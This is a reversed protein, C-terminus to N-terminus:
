SRALWGAFADTVIEPAELTSLHGCRPVIQLVSGAIADAMERQLSPPCLTDSDGGLVLTPVAIETLLARSDTRSALARSQRAFVEAGLDRAMALVTSKLRENRMSDPHLYRPKLEGVLMADLEGRLARDIQAARDLVRDPGANSDLLALRTVREPAQRWIELAVVGGMSLGAVAFRPPATALARCAMGAITDDHTLDAVRVPVRAALATMQPAFLRADCLTGPLLLLEDHPM